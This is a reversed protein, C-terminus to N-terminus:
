STSSSRTKKAEELQKLYLRLEKPQSFATGYLRQLMPQTEKGRYYSGAVNVLQHAKIAGTSEVHPGRCLDTFEGCTFFTIKEDAPIDALRELKYPQGKVMSTAEERTVEQATFPHDEEIIQQMMKEIAEFDDTSLRHPLDFDYYFGEDTPPGIDLKVDPYLRCVAAAMVHACSHRLKELETM